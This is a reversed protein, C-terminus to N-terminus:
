IRFHLKRKRAHKKNIFDLFKQAMEFAPDLRLAKELCAVAAPVDGREYHVRALNHFIHPDNPSITLARRHHMLAEDLLQNKRLGSGFETFMHKHEPAYDLDKAAVKALMDKAKSIEGRKLHSIGMVFDARANREIIEAADELEADDLEVPAPPPSPQKDHRATKSSAAKPKEAHQGSADQQTWLHRKTGGLDLFFEPEETYDARFEEPPVRRKGGTPILNQNLPQVIYDDDGPIPGWVAWYRKRKAVRRTMGAGLVNRETTSYVGRPKTAPHESDDRPTDDAM